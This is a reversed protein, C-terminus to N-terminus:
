GIWRYRLSWGARERRPWIRSLQPEVSSACTSAWVVVHDWPKDLELRVLGGGRAPSLHCDIDGFHGWLGHAQGRSIGSPTLELRVLGDDGRMLRDTLQATQPLRYATHDCRDHAWFPHPYWSVPQGWPSEVLLTTLSELGDDHLRV